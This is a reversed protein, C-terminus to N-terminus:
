QNISPETTIAQNLNIKSLANHDVNRKLKGLVDDLKKVFNDIDSREIGISAAATMYPFAAQISHAGWSDFHHSAIVKHEMGTICRAGSVNRLFLMSGLVSVEEYDGDYCLTTLTMAVSITNNKTELVREGYKSAIKGLEDKLYKFMEKRKRILNQFGLKGLSLLTIFVDIVPSASARGPYNKSIKDLFDKNFGAIISGGVPVLFNKDTSQVFADVRGKAAAEMIRHMLRPCQLGYANNVVHPIDYYSSMTAIQYISDCARPAFCSTTTMICAINAPGISKILTEFAVLDTQLEDGEAVPEIIVPQLGATIICKFCSKQNIRSWLVFKATPRDQKITLLCIVLSIGTASPVLICGACNHVGLSRIVDFLLASTLKSLLSSGAAKPQIESLDGSRGIGHGLRFHRRAVLASAFRAEREGVGCNGPFNNSDMESLDALFLEIAAEEWGEEPVKKHEMLIRILKERSRKSAVAQQLYTRPIMREALEFSRDNM